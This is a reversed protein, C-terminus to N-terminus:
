FGKTSSMRVQRVRRVGSDPAAQQVILARIRLLDSPTTYTEERGDSFRVSATGYRAVNRIAEDILEIDSSTYPM